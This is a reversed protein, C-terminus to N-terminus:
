TGYGRQSVDCRYAHVTRRLHKTWVPSARLFAAFCVGHGMGEGGGRDEDKQPAHELLTCAKLLYFVLWPLM